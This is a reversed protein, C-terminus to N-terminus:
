SGTSVTNAGGGGGGGWVCVSECTARKKTLVICWVDRANKQSHCASRYAERVLSRQQKLLCQHCQSDYWRKKKGEDKRAETCM